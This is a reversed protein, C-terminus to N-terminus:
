KALCGGSFRLCFVFGSRCLFSNMNSKMDKSGSTGRGDVRENTTRRNTTARVSREEYLVMEQVMEVTSPGDLMPEFEEQAISNDELYLTEFVVLSGAGIKVRRAQVRASTTSKM